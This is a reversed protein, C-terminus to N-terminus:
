FFLLSISTKYIDYLIYDSGEETKVKSNVFTFYLEFQSLDRPHQVEVGGVMDTKARREM